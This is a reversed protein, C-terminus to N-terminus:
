PIRCPKIVTLVANLRRIVNINHALAWEKADKSRTEWEPDSLYTIMQPEFDIGEYPLVGVSDELDDTKLSVRGPASLYAIMRESLGRRRTIDSQVDVSTWYAGTLRVVAANRCVRYVEKWFTIVDDTDLRDVINVINLENISNDLLYNGNKRLTKKFSSIFGGYREYSFELKDEGVGIQERRYIRTDCDGVIDWGEM